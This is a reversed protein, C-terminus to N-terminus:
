AKTPLTLHTYSVSAPPNFRYLGGFQDSVIIRGMDDHCLAVWSGQVPKPVSYLLEINFGEPAKINRVPTASDSVSQAAASIGLCLSLTILIRLM